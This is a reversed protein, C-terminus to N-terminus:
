KKCCGILKKLGMLVLLIGILYDWRIFVWYANALVILGLLLWKLGWFKMHKAMDKESMNKHMM